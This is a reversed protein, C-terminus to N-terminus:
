EGCQALTSYSKLLVFFAVIVFTPVMKADSTNSLFQAGSLVKQKRARRSTGFSARSKVDPAEM